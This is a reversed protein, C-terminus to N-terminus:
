MLELSVVKRYNVLKCTMKVKVWDFLTMQRGKHCFHVLPNLGRQELNANAVVDNESYEIFAEFGYKVITVAFGNTQLASVIGEEELVKDKFFMYSFFESSARSANRANRNRMNMRECLVNMSNKNCMNDPLSEIDLAAALLRHVLVDAYRRIPSTFHTYLDAALGYHKYESPDFDASCFYTAENMCRTTMIRVLTNFFVDNPRSIKDLSEALSKSSSYDLSYGLTNLINALQKIMEPKPTTHRRLIALAPFTETIKEAVSVNALLMFEEVMSNTERMDYYSVDTPNSEEDMKFKVQTSALQLAGAALRKSKLIKSLHMLRRLSQTLESKDSKDDIREQAMQYSYAKKSKIITKAFHTAKIDGTKPDFRWFVSFALREEGGVLSCLKETLLKPLMDTRRDVMYVTTCRNSAENDLPTNPRVFFSVDAIHVGAEWTNADIERCHLADDIDKCGPPDVSCVNFERIDTRKKAEFECLAPYNAENPLCDLVRQSFEVTEINFEFLIADNEVGIKGAEGLIKICRGIPYRSFEPWSDIVVVIKKGILASLNNSLLLVNPLRSDALTVVALSLSKDSGKFEQTVEGAFNRLDRKIVGVVRGTPVVTLDRLKSKLAKVHENEPAKQREEEAEPADNVDENFIMQPQAGSWQNEELLEVAVVDGELARNTNSLGRILIERGLALSYIRAEQNNTRNFKIKGRFLRGSFVGAQLEAQQGHAPLNVLLERNEAVFLQYKTENFGIFDRLETQEPCYNKVFAFLTQVKLEQDQLMVIMREDNTVYVLDINHHKLHASYYGFLRLEAMRYADENTLNQGPPAATELFYENPFVYLNRWKELNVVNKFRKFTQESTEKLREVTSQSILLNPLKANFICDFYSKVIDYGPFVLLPRSFDFVNRPTRCNDCNAFGCPIEAHTYVENTTKIM